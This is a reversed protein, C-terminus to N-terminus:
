CLLGVGQGHLVVTYVMVNTCVKAEGNQESFISQVKRECMGVDILVVSINYGVILAIM